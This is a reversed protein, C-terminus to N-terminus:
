QEQKVQYERKFIKEITQRNWSNTEYETESSDQMSVNEIRKQIQIQKREMGDAEYPNTSEHVSSMQAINNTQISRNSMDLKVLDDFNIKEGM